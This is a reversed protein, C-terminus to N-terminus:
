ADISDADDPPLLKKKELSRGIVVMASAIEGSECTPLDRWYLEWFRNYSALFEESRIDASFVLTSVVKLTESYLNNQYEWFVKLNELLLEYEKSEIELKRNKNALYMNGFIGILAVILTIFGSILVKENEM